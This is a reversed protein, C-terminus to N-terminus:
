EMTFYLLNHYFAKIGAASQWPAIRRKINEEICKDRIYEHYKFKKEWYDPFQCNVHYHGGQGPTAASLLIGVGNTNMMVLNKVYTNAHEPEIHEAVELSVVLDCVVMPYRMPTRIDYWIQQDERLVSFEKAADSGEIGFSAYGDADWQKALDGDACGVDVVSKFDIESNVASCFM